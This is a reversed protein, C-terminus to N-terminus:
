VSELLIAVAEGGGICLTAIGYKVSQKKMSKALTLAVRGGSAGIPHGISAAGGNINIKDMDIHLKKAAIIPVLSFAENIEFLGVDKIDLNTKNLLLEIAGVPAEPFLEPVTSFSVSDVIRALPELSLSKLYEQNALLCIAAGDSITSANAATITGDKKFAPRLSSLREFDVKFPDEDKDVLIEQKKIKVKIPMIEDKFMDEQAKQALKYSRIAYEDQEQRKVANISAVDEAINGMHVNSYPDWLGDYILGDFLGGNGMRYGFRAKRLYYPANSMSEMGGAIVAKSRELMISDSALMIAKLGSGCVKNVTMAPINPPLSAYLMAQRAPAQGVGAQLVNGLIVEDISEKPINLRDVLGKIIFSALRPAEISSLLGGFSCFPTRQGDVIFVDVM